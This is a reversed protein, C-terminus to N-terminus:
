YSWHLTVGFTRPRVLGQGIGNIESVSRTVGRKDTLNSAFLTLDTSGLSMRYRLDFLNYNGQRNPAVGPVVSNLDSVGSGVYQHTLTLTPRNRADFRYNLVNSVTWDASGPLQSGAPATGVYLIPLDEDLRARQWTATAQWDFRDSPRWTAALEIGRSYAKGGNTAYNFFDPTQLRLQISKWDVYFLTADLLFRGDAWSTRTGLEYNVLEDSKSGSPVPFESLGATNPQGFRFGESMLGYVMVDANAQWTLSVKPNFGNEKTESPTVIPAGPFTSFGVQTSTNRVKNRFLRGGATLKWADNFHFSGEGFLASESSELHSYFANFIEGDPAIVAGSGPGFLSSQEFAAAAGQAGIQEYLDKDADFYMGGLLWDLRGGPNSALRVEVSKGTSQGGSNIYLPATLDLDLDTNYANRLPTFDFRWDQQKDHYAALATLKAFSFDQDLRLSHVEVQTDTFEPIATNREFEGLGAIRYSNDDSDTNQWLSLWTLETSEGPTLVMSLRGGGIQTDNAGRRGTGINDLFGPDDRRQLVARVAFLDQKLPLNVMAKATYGVDANRTQSITTEAAADFGSSDAVNAVYNVAGGMSASGFLSGQPGRLVEVRDLDFADVDPVVITWGPETLPVENLFYGTTPQGQVNGSSTAIGRMVVHSVGPQYSNFVVGPTREIYDALSQAGLDELEGGTIASVSGAIERVSENLKGATVVVTELTKTSPNDDPETEQPPAQQSWAPASFALGCFCTFRIARTLKRVHLPSPM